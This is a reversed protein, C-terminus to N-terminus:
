ECGTCTLSKFKAVEHCAEVTAGHNDLCRQFHIEYQALNHQHKPKDLNSVTIFLGLCVGMAMSLMHMVVDWIDM